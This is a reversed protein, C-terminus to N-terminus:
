SVTLHLRCLSLLLVVGAAATWQWSCWCSGVVHTCSPNDDDNNNLIKAEQQEARGALIMHQPQHVLPEAATATASDLATPPGTPQFTYFFLPFSRNPNDPDACWHKVHQPASGCACERPFPYVYSVVRIPGLCPDRCAAADMFVPLLKRVGYETLYLLVVLGACDVMRGSTRRSVTAEGRLVSGFLEWLKSDADSLVNGTHIAIREEMGASQVAAIAEASRQPNIEWGIGHCGIQVAAAVLARGDGCGVDILLDTPRLEAIEFAAKLVYGPTSHLVKRPALM